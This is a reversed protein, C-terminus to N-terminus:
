IHAPKNRKFKLCRTKNIPHPEAAAMAAMKLAGM